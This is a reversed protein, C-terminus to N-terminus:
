SAIVRVVRGRLAVRAARAGARVAPGFRAKAERVRAIAANLEGGYVFIWSSYYLFV